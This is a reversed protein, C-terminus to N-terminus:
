DKTSAPMDVSKGSNKNIFTYRGDGKATLSWVDAGDGAAILASNETSAGEVGLVKGNVTVKFYRNDFYDEGEEAITIEAMGTEQVWNIGYGNHDSNARIPAYSQGDIDTVDILESFIEAAKDAPIYTRDNVILVETDIQVGNVSVGAAFAPVAMSLATAACVAKKLVKKM